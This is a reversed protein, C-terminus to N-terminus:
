GFVPFFAPDNVTIRPLSHLLHLQVQSPCAVRHGAVVGSQRICLPPLILLVKDIVAPRHHYGGVRETHTDVLGIHAIDNVVIHGLVDFAVILLGPTGSPVTLGRLAQQEIGPLVHPDIFKEDPRLRLVALQILFFPFQDLLPVLLAEPFHREVAKGIFAQPFIDQPIEPLVASIVAAIAFVAPCFKFIHIHRLLCAMDDAHHQCTM